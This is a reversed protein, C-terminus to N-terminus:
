SAAVKSTDLGIGAAWRRVTEGSVVVGQSRLRAAIEEFSAPPDEDRADTIIKTLRGGLLRDHLQFTSPRAM